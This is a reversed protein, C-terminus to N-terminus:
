FKKKCLCNLPCPGCLPKTKCNEKALKVLLAHYENFLKHDKKLSKHFLSQLDEYSEQKFGFRKMIRSFGFYGLFFDIIFGIIAGAVPLIFGGPAKQFIKQISLWTIM